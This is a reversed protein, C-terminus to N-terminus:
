EGGKPAKGKPAKVRKAHEHEMDRSVIPRLAESIYEALSIDKYAAVIKADRAVDADCKVAVDNRRVMPEAVTPAM